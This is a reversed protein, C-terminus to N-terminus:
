LNTLTTEKNYDFELNPNKRLEFCYQRIRAAWQENSVSDDLKAPDIVSGVTLKLTQGRLKFMEDVLFLSEISAKIHFLRRLRTWRHVRPSLQGHTCFVVIPMNNKKAIKIFSPKWEYDFVEGNSLMRSCYGAPYILISTRQNVANLLTRVEKKNYVCSKGLPRIFKLYAQAVLRCDPFISHLYDFLVMAEPGGYPHNSVFLVKQGQLAEVAKQGKGDYSSGINLFKVVNDLFEQPEDKDHAEFFDNVEKIHLIKEFKRYMFKPILKGLAPSIQDALAKINIPVFKEEHPPTSGNREKKEEEREEELGEM